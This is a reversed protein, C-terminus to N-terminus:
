PTSFRYYRTPHGSANTDTYQWAGSVGINTNTFIPQWIVPPTLDAAVYLRVASEPLGLFSVTIGGNPNRKLGTVLPDIVTLVGNTTTVTYNTLRNGPDVLAPVIAYTGPASNSAAPSAYTATIIDGNVLGAIVGTFVPNTQGHLRNTNNASVTLAATNVALTASQSNTAGSSNTVTVTYPGADSPLLNSITLSNTQAGSIRASNSLSASNLKWQYSLPATGSATVSFNATAGYINTASQPQATIIPPSNNNSSFTSSGWGFIGQFASFSANWNAANSNAPNGDSMTGSGTLVLQSSSFYPETLGSLTFSYNTGGYSFQWLAIPLAPPNIVLSNMTVPVIGPVPIGTFAGAVSSVTTIGTFVISHAATLDDTTAGTGTSSIYATFAGSFAVSGAIPAAQANQNAVRLALWVITLSGRLTKFLSSWFRGARVQGPPISHEHNSFDARRHNFGGAPARGARPVM